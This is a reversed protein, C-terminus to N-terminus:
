LGYKERQEEFYATKLDEPLNASPQKMADMVDVINRKTSAKTLSKFYAEVLESVSTKHSAAYRKIRALLNEDITLNLKAKM